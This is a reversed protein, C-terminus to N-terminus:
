RYNHESRCMEYYKCFYCIHRCNRAKIMHIISFIFRKMEIKLRYLM